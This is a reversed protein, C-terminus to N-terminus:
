RPHSALRRRLVAGLILAGGFLLATSPEPAVQLRGFLGDEEGNLGATFYLNNPSFGPGNNGFKLAWLGDIDIPNGSSNNLTSVFAGTTPDFANIRGDGFNGVLLLNALDGFSAPALALGWPSNLEGMSILRQLSGGNTDYKDVFGFGAGPMDDTGGVQKKAYTVYISGNITEIGFPSYGSPLTPDLFAGSLTVPMYNSDFIDVKGNAFDTAYIRNGAIALGKYVAGSASSDAQVAATTGGQWGSITGDETAFLFRDGKFAGGAANPNFVTGTPVGTTGVPSGPAPPVTVVLAQPQGMGNYLTSLGTGNDATWFPTTPGFSIGWPNVLNPDTFNALGPIDSTLNTQIYGLTGAVMNATALSLLLVIRV